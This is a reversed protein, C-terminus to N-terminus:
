KCMEEVHRLEAGFHRVCDACLWVGAITEGDDCPWMADCSECKRLDDAPEYRLEELTEHCDTYKKRDFFSM